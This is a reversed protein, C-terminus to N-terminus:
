GIHMVAVAMIRRRIHEHRVCGYIPMDCVAAVHCGALVTCSAVALRLVARIAALSSRCLSSLDPLASCPKSRYETTTPHSVPSAWIYGVIVEGSRERLQPSERPAPSQGTVRIARGYSGPRLSDSGLSGSLLTVRM